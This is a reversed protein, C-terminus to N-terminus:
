THHEIGPNTTLAASEEVAPVDDGHAPRLHEMLTNILKDTSTIGGTTGKILEGFKNSDLDLHTNSTVTNRQCVPGSEVCHKTQGNECHSTSRGAECVACAAQKERNQYTGSPCPEPSASGQSCFHGAPCPVATAVTQGPPCWYGILSVLSM